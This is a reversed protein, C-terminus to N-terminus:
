SGACGQLREALDRLAGSVGVRMLAKIVAHRVATSGGSGALEFWHAAESVRGVKLLVSAWNYQGRFYGREASERYWAAAAAANRPTGWGEECCRGVLNMAREHRQQAARYYYAFAQDFDQAVGRGDLYLHGLNYQAWPHGADAARRYEKSAAAPDAAVGWGNDLCRGVMNIADIDGRSAARRFWVLAASQDKRVGTGELLMRGYCSQAQPLGDAAVAHVWNAARQPEQTFLAQLRPGSMQALLSTISMSAAPM